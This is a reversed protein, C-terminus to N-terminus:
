KIYNANIYALWIFGDDNEKRTSECMAIILVAMIFISRGTLTEVVM